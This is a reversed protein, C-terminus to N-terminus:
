WSKEASRQSHHFMSELTSEMIKLTFGLNAMIAKEIAPIMKKDLPQILMTKADPTTISAIQYLHQTATIILLYMISYQQIPKVQGILRLFWEDLHSSAKTM